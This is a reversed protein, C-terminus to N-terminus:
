PRLKKRCGINSGWGGEKRTCFFRKADSCGIRSEQCSEMLKVTERFSPCCIQASITHRKCWICLCYPPCSIHWLKFTLSSRKLLLPELSFSGKTEHADSNESVGYQRSSLLSCGETGIKTMMKLNVWLPANIANLGYLSCSEWEHWYLRSITRVKFFTLTFIKCFPM